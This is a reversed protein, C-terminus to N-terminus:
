QQPELALRLQQPTVAVNGLQQVAIGAAINGLQAATALDLGAALALTIIAILTDGAGTVDFVQSRNHSPLHRVRDGKQLLSLGESGRSIVVGGADLQPLLTMLAQNFAADDPLPHGLYREAEQRNCRILDFGHFQSLDGQSDVVTIINQERAIGQITKILRPTVVNVRYDSVLVAACRPLLQEIRTILQTENEPTLPRRDVRDVRALHHAFVYSGEALIRTKRTTFHQNTIIIGVGALGQSALAAALQEGDQDQGRIGVLLAKSGMSSINTAPNAAGGPLYQARTQELVPVPAERSLRQVRGIQYEDLFLDGVVLIHHHALQAVLESAPLPLSSSM